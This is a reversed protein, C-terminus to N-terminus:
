RRTRGVLRFPMPNRAHVLSLVLQARTMIRGVETVHGEILDPNENALQCLADMEGVMFKLHATPAQKRLESVEACIRDLKYGLQIEPSQDAMIQHIAELETEYSTM